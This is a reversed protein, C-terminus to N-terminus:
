CNTFFFNKLNTDRINNKNSINNTIGKKKKPYYTLLVNITVGTKFRKIIFNIIYKSNEM